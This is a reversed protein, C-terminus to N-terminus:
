KPKKPKVVKSIKNYDTKKFHGIGYNKIVKKVGKTDTKVKEDSVSEIGSKSKKSLSTSKHQESIKDDAHMVTNKWVSSKYSAPNIWKAKNFLDLRQMELYAFYLSKVYGIEDNPNKIEAKKKLALKSMKFELDKIFMDHTKFAHAFTYVFNPDNSYFQVDYERLSGLAKSKNGKNPFLRVVVDYYFKALTECPIKFHIYYDTKNCYLVYQIKGNERVLLNDWKGRYLQDYISRNTMVSSGSGMPNKIYEDYNM